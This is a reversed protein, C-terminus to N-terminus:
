LDQRQSALGSRHGQINGFEFFVMTSHLNLEYKLNLKYKNVKM